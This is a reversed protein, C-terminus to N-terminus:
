ASALADAIENKANHVSQLFASLCSFHFAALPELTAYSKDGEHPWDQTHSHIREECRGCTDKKETRPFSM